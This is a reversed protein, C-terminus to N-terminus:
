CQNLDLTTTQQFKGGVSLYFNSSTKRVLRTDFSINKKTKSYLNKNDSNILIYSIVGAGLGM